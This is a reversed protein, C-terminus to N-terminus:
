KDLTAKIWTDIQKNRAVDFDAGHEFLALYTATVGTIPISADDNVLSAKPHPWKISAKQGEGDYVWGGATAGVDVNAGATFAFEASPVPIILDASRLGCDTVDELAAILADASAIYDALLSQTEMPIVKKTTRGKSDVLTLSLKTAVIKV